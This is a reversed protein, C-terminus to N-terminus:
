AVERLMHTQAVCSLCLALSVEQTLKILGMGGHRMPLSMQLEATHPVQVEGVDMIRQVAGQVSGELKAAAEAVHAHEMTRQLHRLKHQVCKRVLLLLQQKPLAPLDMITDVLACAKDAAEACQQKVWDPQGVPTGVVKIGPQSCDQYGLAAAVRAAAEANFSFVKGLFTM